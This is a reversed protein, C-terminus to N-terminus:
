FSLLVGGTEAAGGRAAMEAAHAEGAPTVALVHHEEDWRILGEGAAWELGHVVASVPMASEAAAQALTKFTGDDRGYRTNEIIALSVGDCEPSEKIERWAVWPAVTLRHDYLEHAISTGTQRRRQARKAKAVAAPRKRSKAM